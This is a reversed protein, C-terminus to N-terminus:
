STWCKVEVDEPHKCKHIGWKNHPCDRIDRENGKCQVEWLWIRFARSVSHRKRRFSVNEGGKYGLMRCVVKAGNHNEDFDDDCITGWSNGHLLEVFGRVYNSGQQVGAVLFVVLM